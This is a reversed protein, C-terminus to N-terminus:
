GLTAALGRLAQRVMLAPRALLALLAAPPEARAPPGQSALRAQTERQVRLVLTALPVQEPPGQPAQSAESALPEPTARGEMM